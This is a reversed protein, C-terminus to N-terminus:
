SANKARREARMAAIEQAVEEPSMAAPEDVGAMRDMASFLEDVRQDRLQDRLWKELRASSLLGARQAEQALQDPLTIQVTTMINKGEPERRYGAQQSVTPASRSKVWGASGINVQPHFGVAHRDIASLHLATSADNIEEICRRERPNARTQSRVPETELSRSVEVKV